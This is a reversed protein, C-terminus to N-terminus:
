QPGPHEKCFSGGSPSGQSICSTGPSKTVDLTADANKCRPCPSNPGAAVTPQGAYEWAAAPLRMKALLMLVGARRRDTREASVTRAHANLGDEAFGCYGAGDGNKAPATADPGKPM